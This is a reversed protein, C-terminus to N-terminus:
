ALWRGWVFGAAGGFSIVILVVLSAKYALQGAWESLGAWPHATDKQLEPHYNGAQALEATTNQDYCNQGDCVGQCTMLEDCIRARRTKITAVKAYNTPDSM